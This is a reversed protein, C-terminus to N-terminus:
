QDLSPLRIAQYVLTEMTRTALDAKYAAAVEITGAAGATQKYLIIAEADHEGDVVTEGQCLQYEGSPRALRVMDHFVRKGDTTVQDLLIFCVDRHVFWLTNYESDRGGVRTHGWAAGSDVFDHNELSLGPLLRVVAAHSLDREIIADLLASDLTGAALDLSEAPPVEPARERSACGALLALLVVAGVLAYRSM